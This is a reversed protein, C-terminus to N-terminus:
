ARRRPLLDSVAIERDPECVPAVTAGEGLVQREGWTGAEPDPSRLVELQRDRLNVIWYELIGAQAYARSKRIRDYRLSTDSVEIALPTTSPHDEEDLDELRILAADPQPESYDSLAVPQQIRAYFRDGFRQVLLHTIRTVVACHRPGVPSMQIVMGDLLEVRDDEHLLGLEVM